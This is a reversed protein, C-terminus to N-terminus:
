ASAPWTGRAIASSTTAWGHWRCTPWCRRTPPSGSGSSGAGGPRSSTRTSLADRGEAHRHHRLHLAHDGRREGSRAGGRARLLGSPKARPGAGGVARGRLLSAAGPRLAPARASRRLRDAGARPLPGEGGPDQRGAGPGRRHRHAGRRQLPRLGDGRGGRGPLASRPDGRADAGRGDGLLSAPPQGRHHRADRRAPARPHASRLRPEAGRGAGAEVVLDALNRPGERPDGAAGRADARARHAAASLHGPAPM